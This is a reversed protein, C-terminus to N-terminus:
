FAIKPYHAYYQEAYTMPSTVHGSAIYDRIMLGTIYHASEDPNGSLEVTYAGAKWQLLAALMWLVACVTLYELALLQFRMKPHTAAATPQKNQSSMRSPVGQNGS